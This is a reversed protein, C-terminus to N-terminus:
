ELALLEDGSRVLTTAVSRRARQRGSRSARREAPAASGYLQQHSRELQGVVRRLLPCRIHGGGACHAAPGRPACLAECLPESGLAALVACWTPQDALLFPCCLVYEPRKLERTEGSRCM